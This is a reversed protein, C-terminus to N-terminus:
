AFVRSGRIAVLPRGQCSHSVSSCEFCRLAEGKGQRLIKKVQTDVGVSLKDVLVKITALNPLARFCAEHLIPRIPGRDLKKGNEVSEAWTVDDYKAVGTGVQELINAYGFRALWHSVSCGRYDISYNSERREIFDWGLSKLQPIIHDHGLLLLERM